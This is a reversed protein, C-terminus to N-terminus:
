SNIFEDEEDVFEFSNANNAVYLRWIWFFTEVEKLSYTVIFEQFNCEGPVLRLEDMAAKFSDEKDENGKRARKAESNDVPTDQYFYEFSTSTPNYGCLNGMGENYIDPVKFYPVSEPTILGKLTDVVDPSVEAKLCSLSCAYYGFLEDPLFYDDLEDVTMTIRTM